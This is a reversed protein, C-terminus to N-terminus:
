LVFSIATNKGSCARRKESKNRWDKGGKPIDHTRTGRQMRQRYHESKTSVSEQRIVKDMEPLLEDKSGKEIRGALDCVCKQFLICATSMGCDMNLM